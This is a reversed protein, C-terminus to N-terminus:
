AQLNRSSIEVSCDIRNTALRTISSYDGQGRSYHQTHRGMHLFLPHSYCPIYISGLLKNLFELHQSQYTVFKKNLLSRPLPSPHNLCPWTSATTENGSPARYYSRRVNWDKRKIPWNFNKELYKIGINVLAYWILVKWNAVNYKRLWSEILLSKVLDWRLWNVRITSNQLCWHYRIQRRYCCTPGLARAM